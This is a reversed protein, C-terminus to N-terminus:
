NITQKLISSAFQRQNGRRYRLFTRLETDYQAFKYFNNYKQLADSKVWSQQHTEHQEIKQKRHITKYITTQGKTRKRKAM